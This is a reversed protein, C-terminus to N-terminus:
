DPGAGATRTRARPRPKLAACARQIEDRLRQPAHVGGVQIINAIGNVSLFLSGEGSTAGSGSNLLRVADIEELFLVRPLSGLVGGSVILRRNTLVLCQEERPNYLFMARSLVCEGDLPPINFPLAASDSTAPPPTPAPAPQNTADETPAAEALPTVAQADVFGRRGDATEVQLYDWQSGDAQLLSGPALHLVERASAFPRDRLTAGADTVTYAGGGPLRTVGASPPVPTGCGHCLRASLPLRERCHHCDM